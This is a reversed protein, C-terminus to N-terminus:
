CGQGHGEHDDGGEQAPAELTKTGRGGGLGRHVTAVTDLNLHAVELGLPQGQDEVGGGGPCGSQDAPEGVHAGLGLEEM